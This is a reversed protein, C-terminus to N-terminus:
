ACSTSRRPARRTWRSASTTRRRGSRSAGPLPLRERELLWARDHRGPLAAAAAAHAGGPGAAHRLVRVRDAPGDGRPPPPPLRLQRRRGRREHRTAPSASRRSAARRSAHGDGPGRARRRRQRVAAAGPRELHGAGGGADSIAVCGPPEARAPACTSTASRSRSRTPSSSRRTPQRWTSSGAAPSCCRRKRRGPPTPGRRARRASSRRSSRRPSVLGPPARAAAGGSRGRATRGHEDRRLGRLARRLRADDLLPDRRGARRRGAEAIHGFATPGGSSFSTVVGSRGNEHQVPERGMRAPREAAARPWTPACRPATSTPSRAPRSRCGSRSETRRARRPQRGDGDRRCGGGARAAGQHRDRLARALRARDRRRALRAAAHQDARESRVRDRLASPRGAQRRPRRHHRHRRATRDSTGFAAPPLVGAPRCSTSCPARRRHAGPGFVHTNSLAAVSISDPAVGPAGASGLGFEDRDNGASIVPVVGAAAVNSVAEVLADNAPDTMPGGGSFNIVNM